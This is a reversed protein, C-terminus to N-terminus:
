FIAAPCDNSIGSENDSFAPCCVRMGWVTLGGVNLRAENFKMAVTGASTLESVFEGRSTGILGCLSSRRSNPGM